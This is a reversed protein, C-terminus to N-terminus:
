GFGGFGTTIARLSVGAMFLGIVAYILAERRGDRGRTFAFAGPVTIIAVIGYLLHVWERGPRGGEVWLVTGVVAQALYLLEGIALVGWYDQSVGQARFFRWLGYVGIILSFIVCARSLAEHVEVLTM